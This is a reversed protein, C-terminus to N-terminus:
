GAPSLTTDFRGSLRQVEEAVVQNMVVVGECNLDLISKSFESLVASLTYV